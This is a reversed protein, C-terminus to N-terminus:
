EDTRVLKQALKCAVYGLFILFAIVAIILIAIAMWVPMFLELPLKALASAAIVGILFPILKLSGKLHLMGIICMAFLLLLGFVQKLMEPDIPSELM